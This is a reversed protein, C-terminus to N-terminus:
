DHGAGGVLQYIGQCHIVGEGDAVYRRLTRIDFGQRRLELVRAAPSMIALLERCETTAIAGETRLWNLLRARQAEKSLDSKM